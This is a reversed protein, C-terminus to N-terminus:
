RAGLYAGVFASAGVFVVWAIFVLTTQRQTM